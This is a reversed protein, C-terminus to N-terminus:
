TLEPDTDGIYDKSADYTFSEKLQGLVNFVIPCCSYNEIVGISRELFGDKHLHPYESCDNPRYVYVSCKNDKLFRCPQEPFALAGDQEQMDKKLVDAPVKLCLALRGLDTEDWLPHNTKCCNACQTCDIKAAVEDNLRKVTVDVAEADVEQQLYARFNWNDAWHQEALMAIKKVDTEITKM